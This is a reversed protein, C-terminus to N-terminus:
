NKSLFALAGRFIAWCLDRCYDDQQLLIEDDPNSLFGCEVIVSAVSTCRCIFYDGALSSFSFGSFTNLSKQLSQAFESSTNQQYFVQPGRRSSLSYTNMHVSIVLHANASEIIRQRALMDRKKFGKTTLGYLGNGNTRTYVVSFNANSFHEGLALAYKLNLDSERVGNKSVYGSDVGGHGADIVVCFVPKPTVTKESHRGFFVVSCSLAVLCVLVICLIKKMM